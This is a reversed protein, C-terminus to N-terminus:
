DVFSTLVQGYLDGMLQTRGHTIRCNQGLKSEWLGPPLGPSGAYLKSGHTMDDANIGWGDITAGPGLTHVVIKGYTEYQYQFAALPSEPNIWRDDFGLSWAICNYVPSPPATIWVDNYNLDPFVSVLENWEYATPKRPPM